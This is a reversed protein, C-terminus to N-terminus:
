ACAVEMTVGLHTEHRALEADLAKRVKATPEAALDLEVVFGKGRPVRRWRGHVEGDVLVPHMLMSETILGPNPMVGGPNFVFKTNSYAVVYEDYAQLL